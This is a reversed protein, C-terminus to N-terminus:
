ARRVPLAADLHEAFGPCALFSPETCALAHRVGEIALDLRRRRQTLERLKALLLDRGDAFGGLQVLAAIEALTFGAERCVLIVAVQRVVEEAYQRRLGARAVPAILGRREWLHLSSVPVGTRRVVEGIDITVVMAFIIV